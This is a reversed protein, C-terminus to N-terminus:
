AKHLTKQVGQHCVTAGWISEVGRRALASAAAHLSAGTTRVDDILLVREPLASAVVQFDSVSLRRREAAGKGVQQRGPRRSLLCCFPIGSRESVAMALREGQDFGRTWRRERPIPVYTVVDVDVRGNMADGFRRGLAEILALRSDYKSRCVLDGLPGEYPGLSLSEVLSSPGPVRLVAVPLARWCRGCVGRACVRGLPGECLLCTDPVVLDLLASLLTMPHLTIVLDRRPSQGYISLWEASRFSGAGWNLVFNISRLRFRM